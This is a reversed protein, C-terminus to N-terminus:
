PAAQPGHAVGAVGGGIAFDGDDAGADAAERQRQRQVAGADGTADVFRGGLDTWQADADVDQRVRARRKTREAHELRELADGDDRALRREEIAEALVDVALRRAAPGAVVRRLERDMAGVQLGPQELRHSRSDAGIADDRALGADAGLREGRVAHTKAEAVRFTSGEGLGRGRHGDAAVADM